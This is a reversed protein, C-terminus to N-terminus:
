GDLFEWPLAIGTRECLRAMDQRDKDTPEYGLHCLTQTEADVCHVRREKIRGIVPAPYYFRSGDPLLQHGGGDIAPTIPHLDIQRGAADAVALATPLWNRLVLGFGAQELASRVRALEDVRVVLDLDSHDRTTEGLLADVGWGGDVWCTAGAGALLDLVEFVDSERM